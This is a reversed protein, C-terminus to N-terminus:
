IAGLTRRNEALDDLLGSHPLVFLDVKATGEGNGVEFRGYDWVGKTGLIRWGVDTRLKDATESYVSGKQSGRGTRGRRSSCCDPM